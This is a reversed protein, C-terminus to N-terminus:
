RYHRFIGNHHHCLCVGQPFPAYVAFDFRPHRLCEGPCKEDQVKRIDQRLEAQIDETNVKGLKETAIDVFDNHAQIGSSRFVEATEKLKSTM